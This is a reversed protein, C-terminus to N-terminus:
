RTGWFDILVPKGRLEAMGRVGMSNVPARRFTYRAGEDDGGAATTWTATGLLLLALGALKWNTANM